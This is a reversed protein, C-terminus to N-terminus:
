NKKSVFDKIPVCKPVPNELKIIAIDIYNKASFVLTASYWQDMDHNFRVKIEMMKSKLQPYLLVSKDKEVLYGLFLHGSTLIYGTHSILIGSAWASGVTILVVSPM